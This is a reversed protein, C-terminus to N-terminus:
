RSAPLHRPTFDRPAGVAQWTDGGGRLRPAPAFGIAPLVIAAGAMGGFAQVGVTFATRRTM